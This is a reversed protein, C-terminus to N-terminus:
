RAPIENKALTILDNKFGFHRGPRTNPNSWHNNRGRFTHGGPRCYGQRQPAMQNKKQAPRSPLRNGLNEGEPQQAQHRPDKGKKKKRKKLHTEKRDM